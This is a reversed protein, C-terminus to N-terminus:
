RMRFKVTVTLHIPVANGGLTAPEYKWQRVAAAAAQQLLDPGSITRVRTVRGTEDILADLTVDGEVGQSRAHPPYAPLTSSILRAPRVGGGIPRELKPAAPQLGSGAILSGLGETSVRSPVEPASDIGEAAEPIKAPSSSRKAHPRFLRFHSIAAPKKSGANPAEHSEAPKEAPVSSPGSAEVTKLAEPVPSSVLPATRTNAPPLVNMSTAVNASQPFPNPATVRVRNHWWYWGGGALAALLLEAAILVILPARRPTAQASETEPEDFMLRGIFAGIEDDEGPKTAPSAPNATERERPFVVPEAISAHEEAHSLLVVKPQTLEAHPPQALPAPLSGLAASCEAGPAKPSLLGPNISGVASSHTSVAPTTTHSAASPLPQPRSPAQSVGAAGPASQSEPGDDPFLIGWFGVTPETFKLEIYGAVNEYTTSKVVYCLVKKGTHENTLFILQGPNVATKLRLVAGNSFVIITRTSEYFSDRKGSDTSLCGGQVTVPVEICVPQPRSTKEGKGSGVTRPRSLDQTAIAGM